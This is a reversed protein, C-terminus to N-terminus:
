AHKSLHARLAEAVQEPQEVAAQHSADSVFYIDVNSNGGARVSDALEEAAEKPLTGDFEARIIGMPAKVKGLDGRNDMNAIVECCQAYGEDKCDTMTQRTRQVGPGNEALHPETFWREMTADVLSETGNARVAEAKEFWASPPPIAPGSCIMAFSQIREPRNIAMWLSMMGGLSLGGLHFKDIGEKDLADLIADGIMAPTVSGEVKEVPSKGHGPFDYRLVRYDSLHPMVEDWMHRDTGLSSGLVVVPADEPGEIEYSVTIQSM